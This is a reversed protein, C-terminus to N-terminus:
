FGVSVGLMLSHHGGNLNSYVKDKYRDYIYGGKLTLNTKLEYDAGFALSHVQSDIKDNVVYSSVGDISIAPDATSTTNLDGSSDSFTYSARLKLQDTPQYDANLSLSLTNVKYASTGRQDFVIVQEFRRRNTGFFYTEFDNQAWDLSGSVTVWESPNHSISLGVAHFQDDAKQRYSPGLLVVDGEVAGLKDTDAFSQDGNKKDKYHYYVNLHAQNSLAYGLGTKLNFSDEAETVYGTKSARLWSPTVRLTMDKTPRANWRLYIEDSKSRDQLLVVTPWAGINDDTPITNYQLDRETDAHKWGAALSSKVPLGRFTAALGYELTELDAIRVGWEDRVTRDLGLGGGSVGDSSKNQRDFYKIFGEISTSSALRHNVNFFANQTNIKGSNFQTALQDDSFSDQKLRSMGYGAALATSGYNKSFRFAHTMLTTDPVFHLMMDGALTLLPNAEINAQFDEMLPTRAKSNFEEISGDYAFQFLGGPNATFNLSFRGMNEDVPRDYGRWRAQKQDVINTPTIDSNGFVFTSFKNGERKYGDVNLALSTGKGLLDPKFKVGVGYRTREVSYRTQGDTDDNFNSLHLSGNTGSLTYGTAVPNNATGPRNLYDLGGSNLRYHSYYGTFGVDSNGGKINGRHSDRGFGQRELSFYDGIKLDVDLDAYFGSDDKGTWSRESGFYAQLYQPSGDGPGGTYNFYVLKPTVEGKVVTGGEDAAYAQSIAASLVTLCAVFCTSSKNAKM